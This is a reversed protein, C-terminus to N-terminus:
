WRPNISGPPPPPVAPALRRVPAPDVQKGQGPSSGAGSAPWAVPEVRQPRPRAAFRDQPWGAYGLRILDAELQRCFRGTPEDKAVRCGAVYRGQYFYLRYRYRNRSQRVAESLGLTAFSVLANGIETEPCGPEDGYNLDFEVVKMWGQLKPRWPITVRRPQGLVDKIQAESMGARVHHQFDAVGANNTTVCGAAALILVAALGASELARKM